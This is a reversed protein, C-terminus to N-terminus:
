PRQLALKQPAIAPEWSAFNEDQPVARIRGAALDALVTELLRLGMPALHDRWLSAANTGSALWCWDQAAIPGTDAGDDFWYVTGGAVLDRFRVAWEVADRGRHRPLLSPHYGLAGLRTRARMEPTIFAHHHACLLLDTGAPIHDPRFAPTDMVPRDLDAALGVLRDGQPTVVLPIEHGLRHVLRLVEAGFWKQGCVIIKM